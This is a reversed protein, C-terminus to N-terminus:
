DQAGVLFTGLRSLDTLRLADDGEWEIGLHTRSIESFAYDVVVQNRRSRGVTHSGPPMAYRVGNEDELHLEGGQRHIRFPHGALRVVLPRGPELHVTVAQERPLRRGSDSAMPALGSAPRDFAQTEPIRFGVATAQQPSVEEKREGQLAGRRRLIFRALRRRFSVYERYKQVAVRLYPLRAPAHNDPDLLTERWGHDMSVMRADLDRLVRVGKDPFHDLLYLIHQMRDEVQELLESEQELELASHELFEILREPPVKVCDQLRATFRALEQPDGENTGNEVTTSM